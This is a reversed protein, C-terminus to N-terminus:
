RYQLQWGHGPLESRLFEFQEPKLPEFPELILIGDAGELKLHVEEVRVPAAGDFPDLMVGPPPVFAWDVDRYATFENPGHAVRWQIHFVPM